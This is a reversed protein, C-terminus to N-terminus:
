RKPPRTPLRTIKAWWSPISPTARTISIQRRNMAAVMRSETALTEETLILLEDEEAPVPYEKEALSRPIEYADQLEKHGSQASVTGVSGSAEMSEFDRVTVKEGDGYAIRTSDPSFAVSLADERLGTIKVLTEGNTRNFVTIRGDATAVAIYEQDPSVAVSVVSANQKDLRQRGEGTTLNWEVVTGERTGTVLYKKDKTLVMSNVLGSPGKFFNKIEEGKDLDFAGITGNNLALYAIHRKGKVTKETRVQLVGADM